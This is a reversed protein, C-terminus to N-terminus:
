RRERYCTAHWGDSGELILLKCLCFACCRKHWTVFAHFVVCFCFPCKQRYAPFVRCINGFLPFIMGCIVYPVCGCAFACIRLLNRALPFLNSHRSAHLTFLSLSPLFRTLNGCLVNKGGGAHRGRGRVCFGRLDIERRAVTKGGSAHRAADCACGGAGDCAVLCPGM